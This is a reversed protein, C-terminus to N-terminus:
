FFNSYFVDDFINNMKELDVIDSYHQEESEKSIDSSIILSINKNIDQSKNYLTFIQWANKKYSNLYFELSNNDHLQSVTYKIYDELLRNVDLNKNEINESSKYLQLIKSLDEINVTAHNNYYRMLFWTFIESNTLNLNEADPKNSKFM